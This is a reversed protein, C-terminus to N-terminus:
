SGRKLVTTKITQIEEATLPTPRGVLEFDKLNDGFERAIVHVYVQGPNGAVTGENLIITLGAPNMTKKIRESVESVLLWLDTKEGLSLETLSNVQSKPICFFSNVGLPFKNVVVFSRSTALVIDKPDMEEFAYM